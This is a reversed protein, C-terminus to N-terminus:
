QILIFRINHIFFKDDPQEEKVEKELCYRQIPLKVPLQEGDVPDVQAIPRKEVQSM